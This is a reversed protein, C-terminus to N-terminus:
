DAPGHLPDIGERTLAPLAGRQEVRPRASTPRSPWRLWKPRSIPTSLKAVEMGRAYEEDVQDWHEMAVERQLLSHIAEARLAHMNEHTCYRAMSLCNNALDTRDLSAFRTIAQELEIEDKIAFSMGHVGDKLYDTVGETRSAIVPLGQSYADFLIRPQEDTLTPLILADYGRLMTFFPEGYEVTGMYRISLGPRSVQERQVWSELPGTGYVDLEIAQLQHRKLTEILWSIGKDNTIRGAFVLRLVEGPQRTVDASVQDAHIWAAPTVLAPRDGLMSSRYADTTFVPLDARRVCFVNMREVFARWLRRKMSNYALTRWFASEVVILSRFGRFPRMPTTLWATPFPWGAIESHVIAKGETARWLARVTGPLRFLARLMTKPKPVTVFRVSSLVPCETIKVPREPMGYMSYCFLTLDPIYAVHRRLDQAWLDDVYRDGMFEYVPVAFLALLYPAEILAEHQIAAELLIHLAQGV